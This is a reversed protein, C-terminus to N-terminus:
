VFFQKFFLVFRNSPKEMTFLSNYTLYLYQDQGEIFDAYYNFPEYYKVFISNGKFTLTAGEDTVENLCLDNECEGENIRISWPNVYPFDILEDPADLRSNLAIDGCDEYCALSCGGEANKCIKENEVGECVGDGCVQQGEKLPEIIVANNERRQVLNKSGDVCDNFYYKYATDRTWCIEKKIEDLGFPYVKCYVSSGELVGKCFRDLSCMDKKYENITEGSGDRILVDVIDECGNKENPPRGEIIVIEASVVGVFIMLLIGFVLVGRSNM